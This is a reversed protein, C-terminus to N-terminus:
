FFEMGKVDILRIRLPGAEFQSTQQFIEKYDEQGTRRNRYKTAVNAWVTVRRRCRWIDSWNRPLVEATTVPDSYNSEITSEDISGALSAAGKIDGEQIAKSFRDALTTPRVFVVYFAISLVTFGILLRRLSIRLRPVQM